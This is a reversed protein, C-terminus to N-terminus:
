REPSVSRRDKSSSTRRSSESRRDPSRPSDRKREVPKAVPDKFSKARSLLEEMEEMTPKRKPDKMMKALAAMTEESISRKTGRSSSKVKHLYQEHKPSPRSNSRSSESEPESPPTPALFPHSIAPSEQRCKEAPEPMEVNQDLPEEKIIASDSKLLAEENFDSREAKIQLILENEEIIKMAAPTEEERAKAFVPLEVKSKEVYEMNSLDVGLMKATDQVEQIQKISMANFDTIGSGIIRIVRDVSDKCVDPIFVMSNTCCPVDKLISNVLPSFFRVLDRSAISVNGDKTFIKLKETPDLLDTFAESFNKGLM